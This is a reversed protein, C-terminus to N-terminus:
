RPKAKTSGGYMLEDLVQSVFGGTKETAVKATKQAHEKLEGTQAMEQGKSLHKHTKYAMNQFTQSNALRKTILEGAIYNVVRQVLQSM